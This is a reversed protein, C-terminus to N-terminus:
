VSRVESMYEEAWAIQKQAERLLKQCTEDNEPDVALRIASAINREAHANMRKEKVLLGSVRAVHSDNVKFMKIKAM